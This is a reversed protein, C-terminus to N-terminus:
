LEHGGWKGKCTRAKESQKQQPEEVKLIGGDHRRLWREQIPPGYNQKSVGWKVWHGRETIDYKEAELKSMGVLYAQWRINDVLVSSGRSAQQIDGQGGLAAAKSSHHLFLVSCGTKDAIREMEAIVGAMAGSDNEDHAHFRRLTDLILLRSGDAVGCLYDQWQRTGIDAGKGILPEIYLQEAIAQQQDRSLHKGLAHLRHLLAPVPDEAPLYVVRGTPLSGGGVLDPGGAIQAAVQLAFMSKGAGGPSVLAGVTGSLMGPLVYDLVPPKDAFAALIDIAM